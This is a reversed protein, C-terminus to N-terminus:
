FSSRKVLERVYIDAEPTGEEPAWPANNDESKPIFPGTKVEFAVSGTELSVVTHYTRPPIEVGYNGEEASLVLHDSIEGDDDFQIVLLTGRLVIFLEERDPNSHRHPRGYTYPEMANLLRQLEAGLDEHFNHNMRKRPSAIAKQTVEDLLEATIKKM